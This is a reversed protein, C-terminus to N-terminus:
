PMMRAITPTDLKNESRAMIVPEVLRRVSMRGFQNVTGIIPLGTEDIEPTPPHLIAHIVALTSSPLLSQLAPIDPDFSEPLSFKQAFLLDWYFSAMRAAMIQWKGWRSSTQLDSAIPKWNAEFAERWKGVSSSDYLEKTPNGLGLSLRIIEYEPSALPQESHLSEIINKDVSQALSLLLMQETTIHLNFIRMSINANVGVTHSAFRARLPLYFSVWHSAQVLDRSWTLNTSARLEAQLASEYEAFWSPEVNGQALLGIDPRKEGFVLERLKYNAAM